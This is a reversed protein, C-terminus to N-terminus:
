LNFIINYVYYIKRFAAAFSAFLKRSSDVQNSKRDGVTCQM